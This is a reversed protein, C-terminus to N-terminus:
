NGSGGETHSGTRKLHVALASDMTAAHLGFWAPLRDRVYARGLAVFGKEVRRAFQVLEGLVRLHEERHEGTAPFGSRIMWENEREFHAQTHAVLQAFLAPFDATAARDLANVLAAFERHTADMEEVGLALIRDSWDLLEM